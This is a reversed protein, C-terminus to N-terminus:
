NIEIGEKETQQVIGIQKKKRDFEEPTYCLFDVPYDLTWYARFGLSRYRFKKKNFDPSVVLLDFDSDPMANGTARSGFFYMKKVKVKQSLEKKFKLLKNLHKKRDM